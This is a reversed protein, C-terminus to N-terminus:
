TADEDPPIEPVEPPSSPGSKGVITISSAPLPFEVWPDHMVDSPDFRSAGGRGPGARATCDLRQNSFRDEQARNRVRPINCLGPTRPIKVETKSVVHGLRGQPGM